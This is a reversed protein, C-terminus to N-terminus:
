IGHIAVTPLVTSTGWPVTYVTPFLLTGHTVNYVTPSMKYRPHCYTGHPVDFYQHPLVTPSLNTGHTVCYIGHTVVLVTPFVMYIGHIVREGRYVGVTYMHHEGRYLEKDGM